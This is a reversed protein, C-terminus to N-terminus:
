HGSLWQDVREMMIVGGESMLWVHEWQEDDCM